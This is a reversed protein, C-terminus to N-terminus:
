YDLRDAKIDSRGGVSWCRFVLRFFFLFLFGVSETSTKPKEIQLRSFWRGLFFSILHLFRCFFLWDDSASLSSLSKSEKKNNHSWRQNIRHLSKSKISLNLFVFVIPLWDDCLSLSTQQMMIGNLKNLEYWISQMYLVTSKISYLCDVLNYSTTDIAVTITAATQSNTAQNLGLRYWDVVM